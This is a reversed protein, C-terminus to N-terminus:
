FLNFYFFVCKQVRHPTTTVQIRIVRNIRMIIIYSDRVDWKNEENMIQM